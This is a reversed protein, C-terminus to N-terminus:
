RGEQGRRANNHHRNKCHDDCFRRARRRNKVRRDDVLFERCGKEGCRFIRVRRQLADMVVLDLTHFFLGSKADDPAELPWPKQSKPRARLPVSDRGYKGSLWHVFELVEVLAHAGAVIPEDDRGLRKMSDILTQATGQLIERRVVSPLSNLGPGLVEDSPFYSGSVQVYVHTEEEDDIETVSTVTSGAFAVLYDLVTTVGEHLDRYEALSVSLPADGAAEESRHWFLDPDGNAFELLRESWLPIPPRM